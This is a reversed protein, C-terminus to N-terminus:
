FIVKRTNWSFSVLLDNSFLSNWSLDPGKFGVDLMMRGRKGKKAGNPAIAKYNPHQIGLGHTGPEFGSPPELTSEAKWGESTLLILVLVNQPNLLSFYVAEECNSQLRLVISDWGYFLAMFNKWNQM